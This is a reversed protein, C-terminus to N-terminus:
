LNREFFDTLKLYLQERWPGMVNHESRPYPYYDPLVNNEVCSQMFSLSNIPLVTGDEMGQCILLRGKLSTTKDELSTRAFGEPNTTPNDMYREGYMVEYWKWDIVPGGACGAKFIEPHSTMLTITMFGGYSWGAVGIRSEDVWGEAILTNIGEVQDATEAVGCQRNIARAFAYGRNDTGRNDQIYMVYGKQAMLLEWYRIGALWSDTVLQSHPGGYVYVILPYKKAPDFDAPKVLRYYNEFAPDASPVTGFEVTVPAYPAIPDASTHLDKLLKGDASRLVTKGPVDVASWSDIFKSGDPSISVSHSGSEPTLREPKGFRVKALKSPKKCVTLNSLRVRFLQNEAPSVEASSYYVYEGDNALYQVDASCSTLRRVNGDLDCLYLQFFGDRVDTRYIFFNSDKVFYVGEHPEVWAADQECFLTRAFSGDSANYVNFRLQHQSRDIVQVLIQSGDPTWTVGALYREDTFDTVALTNLVHGLTDCVCLDVHESPMGNMPYRISKLSGTRTTIDLLPFESMASEDVRYVALLVGDPSPYFGANIGFENRSPVKGYTVAPDESVPLVPMRRPGFRGRPMADQLESTASWGFWKRDPRIGPSNIDKCTLMRGGPTGVTVTKEVTRGSGAFANVALLIAAAFAAAIAIRKM